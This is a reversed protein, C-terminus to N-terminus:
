KETTTEAEAPQESLNELCEFCYDTTGDDHYCGCNKCISYGFM